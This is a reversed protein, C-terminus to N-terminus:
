ASRVTAAVTPEPVHKLVLDLLPALGQDKPGEPNVNMWGDRGSGYLIPFDLQEDTADLNAFLDFVENIVEDHRGDPRDIKNIAVIPRLGVKLAKGVVFKTQPMPGESATSWCSRASGGDVPHARGRRRLRRPRAHRRHQHPHGEVRGLDGQCPHHHRAGKRPRQLGDRARRRAPQRPVLRVAEAARRRAHDQWPRRARHDRHQANEDSPDRFNTAPLLLRRWNSKAPEYGTKQMQPFPHLRLSDLASLLFAASAPNPVFLLELLAPPRRFFPIKTELSQHGVLYPENKPDCIQFPPILLPKEEEAPEERDGAFTLSGRATVVPELALKRAEVFDVKGSGLVPVKGIRVEAPVMMDMANKSKAYALFEARTANPADTLLILREGKKQRGPDGLCGLAPGAVPQRGTGRRRRAVGDRRRDQRLAQRPGQHTVFGEDDITVIDGTDHWGEPLPELVGPNEARLYGAMVNPGRVISGGAKTSAPCRNSSGNWARCSRASRAPSTSVDAHQDAIVPATETVGYGELIRLGFKEM